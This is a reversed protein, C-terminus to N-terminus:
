DSIYIRTQQSISDLRQMFWSGYRKSHKGRSLTCRTNFLIKCDIISKCSLLYRLINNM